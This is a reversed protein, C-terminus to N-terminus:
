APSKTSQAHRDTGSPKVEGVPFVLDTSCAHRLFGDRPEEACAKHQEYEATTHATRVRRDYETCATHQEYEANTHATRHTTSHATRHTTSHQASDPANHQTTRKLRGHSGQSQRRSGARHRHSIKKEHKKQNKQTKLKIYRSAMVNCRNTFRNTARYIQDMRFRQVGNIRVTPLSLESILAM